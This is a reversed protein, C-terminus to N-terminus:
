WGPTQELAPSKIKESQPVPYWYMKPLFVRPELEFPAYSFTTDDVRTVRVGKLPASLMDAALKWRRLDWYRHEEFALEVRRENRVKERFDAQNWQGALLPPMNVSARGRVANVAAIASLGWGQPDQDPGYAENMAEAYNLYMEALRFYIWTHVSAKNQVLDLNEDMYKKLYYGTRSARDIEPGDKGGTWIEMSRGRWTTNNAIVTMSLRPDRDKYPASAHAPNNWDFRSGDTLEYADVLNQSPTTGSQGGDYVPYNASEFSNAAGARRAFIIESNNYTNFLARYNGALQYVNLDIVAKAAAAAQEWRSQMGGGSYGESAWYLLVRSKLALAAGKVARGTNTDDTTLPLGAAASDCEAAIFQVCEELSNRPLDLNDTLELVRTILPVGGYRKVLEFYFFARLFRAEHRWRELDAVMNNYTQQATPDPNLKYTDLNVNGSKELFQNTRRIAAYTANWNDDPNIYPSWSGNNYRQIAGGEWTFEADDTAAALMANDIRNFGAPLAAYTGVLFDRTRAYSTFVQEETLETSIQRDLFDKQCAVSLMGMMAAFLM